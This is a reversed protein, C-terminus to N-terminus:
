ASEGPLVIVVGLTEAAYKAAWEVFATFEAKTAKSSRFKRVDVGTVKDQVFGQYRGCLGEHILAKAEAREHSDYQDAALGALLQDYVTGWMLRNQKNTRKDLHESITLDFEEGVALTSLVRDFYPRALIVPQNKANKTAAFTYTWGASM